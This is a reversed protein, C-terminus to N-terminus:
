DTAPKQRMGPRIPSTVTVRETYLPRGGPLSRLARWTVTVQQDSMRPSYPIAVIPRWIFNRRLQVGEKRVNTHIVTLKLKTDSRSLERVLVRDPSDLVPGATLISLKGRAGASNDDESRLYARAIEEATAFPRERVIQVGEKIEHFLSARTRLKHVIAREVSLREPEAADLTTITTMLLLAIAALRM